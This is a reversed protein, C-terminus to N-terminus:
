MQIKINKECYKGLIKLVYNSLMCKFICKFIWAYMLSQIEILEKIIHIDHEIHINKSLLTHVPSKNQCPADGADTSVRSFFPKNLAPTM